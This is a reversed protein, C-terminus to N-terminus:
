ARLEALEADADVKVAKAKKENELRAIIKGVESNPNKFSAYLDKRTLSPDAALKKDLYAKVFDQSKGAAEMIARIVISAGAYSDASGTGRQKGWEGSALRGLVADIAVLMDDVEEEGSAEDGIKQSAGHCAFDILLTSESVNFFRTAGNRFDFRVGRAGGDLEVWEKKLKTKGSFSVERGDDMKVTEVLPAERKAKPASVQESVATDELM